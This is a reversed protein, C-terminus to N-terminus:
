DMEAIQRGLVDVLALTGASLKAHHAPCQGERAVALPPMKWRWTGLALVALTHPAREGAVLANLVRRARKGFVDSVVTALKIRTDELM